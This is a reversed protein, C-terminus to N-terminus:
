VLFEDRIFFKARTVQPDEDADPVAASVCVCVCVPTNEPQTQHVHTEVKLLYSTTATNLSIIRWDPNEQWFRTLLFM